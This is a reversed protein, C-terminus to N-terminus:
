VASNYADMEKSIDLQLGLKHNAEPPALPILAGGPTFTLESLVITGDIDYLDVRVLPFDKSLLRAYEVMQPLLPSLEVDDTPYRRNYFEAKRGDTYYYTLREDVGNGLGSALSFFTPIGNMCYINYNVVNPGLYKECIIKRPIRAYHPEVDYKSYDEAMWAKLKKTAEATDLKSKDACIINYGCGHNCKLVFQQPLIDWDIDDANDWVAILENLLHELNRESLYERVSYKDACQIVTDQNPCYYLKLWQLKENLTTPTKLNLPEKIRIRYYLSSMFEQPFVSCLVRQIKRRAKYLKGHSM